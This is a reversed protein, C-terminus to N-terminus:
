KHSTIVRQMSCSVPAKFKCPLEIVFETGGCSTPYCYLNGGHKETIIKYSISLGLGTGQGVPKTTFFPDFIRSRVEEAIGSGNDIIHIAIGQDHISKTQIKIEKQTDQSEEVAEIANALLNM